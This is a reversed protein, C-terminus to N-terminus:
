LLEARPNFEMRLIGKVEKFADTPNIRYKYHLRFEKYYTSRGDPTSIINVLYTNDYIGSPPLQEVDIDKYSEITVHKAASNYDTQNEINVVISRANIRTLATIYDGMEEDGALMRVSHEGIPFVQNASTPRRVVGGEVMTTVFSSTYNYFTNTKTTAYDNKKFIRYLVKNKKPNFVSTNEPDLEYNLFYTTDPSLRELNKLLVPFKAQFTGPIIDMQLEPLEYCEKPLMRAFRTADIDFNSKNYAHFLSDEEILGVKFTEKSSNTGSLAAVIYIIDGDSKIEAIQRDYLSASNSLLSVENKYQEQEFDYEECSAFALILIFTFIISLINKM